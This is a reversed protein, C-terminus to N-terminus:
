SPRRKILDKLRSLFSSRGVGREELTQGDQLAPDLPFLLPAMIWFAAGRSEFYVECADADSRVGIPEVALTGSSAIARVQGVQGALELAVTAPTGRVGVHDGIKLAAERSM